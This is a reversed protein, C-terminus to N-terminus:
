SYIFGRLKRGIVVPSPPGGGGGGAFPGGGFNTVRSTSGGISLAIHGAASYTSDTRSAVLQWSGGSAKYYGNITTGIIEIGIADGNSWSVSGPLASPSGLPAYVGNTVVFFEMSQGNLNALVAYYDAGSTGVNQIRAEVEVWNGAGSGATDITCYCECDASSTPGANWYSGNDASTGPGNAFKNSVRRLQQNGTVTPGSWSGGVPNADTGTGSDLISTEPFAM